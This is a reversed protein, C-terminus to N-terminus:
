GARYDSLNLLNDGDRFDDYQNVVHDSPIELKFNKFFSDEVKILGDVQEMISVGAKRLERLDRYYADHGMANKTVESGMKQILTWTAMLRGPKAGSYTAQLKELVQDAMSMDGSGVLKSLYTKLIRIVVPMVEIGIYGAPLIDGNQATIEPTEYKVDIDLVPRGDDNKEFVGVSSLFAILLNTVAIEDEPGNALKGAKRSWDTREKIWQGLEPSVHYVAIDGLLDKVTTIGQRELFKKRGTIEFRVIGKSKEEYHQVWDPNAKAKILKKLDNTQFEQHKKYVKASYTAGPWFASHERHQPKKWPYKLRKLGDIFSDAIEQSPMRWSYCFDCRYVLWTDISPLSRWGFHEKIIEKLLELAQPWENLLSINHGYWLKPLSLEIAMYYPPSKGLKGTTNWTEDWPVSWRIDRDHSARKESNGEIIGPTYRLYHEGRLPHYLCKVWGDNAVSDALAMTYQRSSLPIRVQITDIM